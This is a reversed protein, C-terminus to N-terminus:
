DVLATELEQLSGLLLFIEADAENPKKVGLAGGVSPIRVRSRCDSWPLITMLEGWGRQCM